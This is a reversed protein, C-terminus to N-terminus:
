FVVLEVLAVICANQDFIFVYSDRERRQWVVDCVVFMNVGIVDVVLANGRGCKGCVHLHVCFCLM